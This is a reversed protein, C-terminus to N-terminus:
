HAVGRFLSTVVGILGMCCAVLVRRVSTEHNKVVPELASLRQEHLAISISIDPIRDTNEKIANVKGILEGLQQENM